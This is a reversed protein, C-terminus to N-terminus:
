VFGLQVVNPLVVHSVLNGVNWASRNRLGEASLIALNHHVDIRELEFAILQAGHVNHAVTLSLLRM